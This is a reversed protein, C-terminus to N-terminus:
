DKVTVPRGYYAAAAGAVIGVATLVSVTTPHTFAAGVATRIQDNGFLALALAAIGGFGVAKTNLALLNM